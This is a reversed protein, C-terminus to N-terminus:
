IVFNGEDFVVVESGDFRTGTIKMDASGFMFDVHEMSINAGAALLQEETMGNGGK